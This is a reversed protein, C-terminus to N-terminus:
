NNEYGGWGGPIYRHKTDVILCFTLIYLLDFHRTEIFVTAPCGHGTLVNDGGTGYLGLLARHGGLAGHFESQSDTNWDLGKITRIPLNLCTSLSVQGPEFLADM